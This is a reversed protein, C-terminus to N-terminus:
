RELDVETLIRLAPAALSGRLDGEPRVSVFDTVLARPDHDRHFIDFRYVLATDSVSQLYGPRRGVHRPVHALHVNAMRVAVDESNTLASLSDHLVARRNSRRCRRM